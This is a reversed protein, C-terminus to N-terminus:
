NFLYVPVLSNLDIVQPGSVSDFRRDVVPNPADNSWGVEVDVFDLVRSKESSEDAYIDTLSQDIHKQIDKKVTNNGDIMHNWDANMSAKTLNVDAPDASVSGSILLALILITKNM